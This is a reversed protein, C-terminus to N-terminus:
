APYLPSYPAMASAFVVIREASRLRGAHLVPPDHCVASLAIDSPKDLLTPVLLPNHRVSASGGEEGVIPPATPPWAGCCAAVAQERGPGGRFIGRGNAECWDVLGRDGM